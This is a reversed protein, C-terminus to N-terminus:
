DRPTTKGVAQCAKNIRFVMQCGGIEHWALPLRFALKRAEAWAFATVGNEPQRFM